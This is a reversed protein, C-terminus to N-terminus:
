SLNFSISKYVFKENLEIKENLKIGVFINSIWRKLM